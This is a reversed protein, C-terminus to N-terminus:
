SALAARSRRMRSVLLLLAGACLLVIGGTTLPGVGSSGTTAIGGTPTTTTPIDSTLVEITTCITQPRTVGAPVTAGIGTLDACVQYVGPTTPAPFPTSSGLTTSDCTATATQGQFHFIVTEGPLCDSVTAIFTGGPPVTPKDTTITSSEGYAGVIGAPGLAFAGLLTTVAVTLILAVRKM